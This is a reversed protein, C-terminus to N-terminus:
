VETSVLKRSRDALVIDVDIRANDYGTTTLKVTYSTAIKDTVLWELSRKASFKLEALFDASIKARHAKYLVTGMPRYFWKDRWSFLSVIVASTITDVTELEPTAEFEGDRNFIM